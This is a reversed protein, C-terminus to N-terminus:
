NLRHSRHGPPCARPQPLSVPTSRGATICRRMAGLSSGYCVMDRKDVVPAVAAQFAALDLGQYQSLARQAVYITTWGKSLCFTTGFGSAALGSPMGGFTIVIVDASPRDPRHLTILYDDTRALTQLQTM